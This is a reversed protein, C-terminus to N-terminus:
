PPKLNQHRTLFKKKKKVKKDSLPTFIFCKPISIMDRKDRNKMILGRQFTLFTSELVHAPSEDTSPVNLREESKLEAHKLSSNFHFDDTQSLLNILLGRIEPLTIKCGPLCVFYELKKDSM